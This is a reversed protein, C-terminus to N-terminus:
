DKRCGAVCAFVSGFGAVCASLVGQCGDACTAEVCMHECASEVCRRECAHLVRFGKNVPVRMVDWCGHEYTAEVCGLLGHECASLVYWCGRECAAKVCGLVPM